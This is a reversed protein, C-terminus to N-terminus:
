EEIMHDASVIGATLIGVQDETLQFNKVETESKLYAGLKELLLRKAQEIALVRCSVKSDYESTPDTYEEELHMMKALSLNAMFLPFGFAIGSSISRASGPSPSDMMKNPYDRGKWGGDSTQLRPDSTQNM